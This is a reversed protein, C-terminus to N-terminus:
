RVSIEAEEGTFTVESGPLEGTNFEILLNNETVSMKLEPLKGTNVLESNGTPKYTGKASNKFALNGLLSTNSGGSGHKRLWSKLYAITEIDFAM